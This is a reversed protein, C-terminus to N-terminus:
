YANSFLITRQELLISIYAGVDVYRNNGDLLLLIHVKGKNVLLKEKWEKDM